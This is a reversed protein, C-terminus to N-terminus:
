CARSESAAECRRNEIDRANRLPEDIMVSPDSETTLIDSGHGRGDKGDPGFEDIRRVERESRSPASRVTGAQGAHPTREM